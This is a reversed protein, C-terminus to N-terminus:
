DSEEKESNMETKYMDLQEETIKDEELMLEGIGDKWLEPVALVTKVAKGKTSYFTYKLTFESKKLMKVSKDIIIYHYGLLYYLASAIIAIMIIKKLFYM